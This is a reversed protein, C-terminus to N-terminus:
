PALKRMPRLGDRFLDGRCSRRIVEGKRINHMFTRRAWGRPANAALECVTYCRREVANMDRSLCADAEAEDAIDLEEFGIPPKGDRPSQLEVAQVLKLLLSLGIIFAAAVTAATMIVHHIEAGSLTYSEALKEVNVDAKLYKSAPYCENGYTPASM